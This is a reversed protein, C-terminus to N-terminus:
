VQEVNFHDFTSSSEKCMFDEGMLDLPHVEYFICSLTFYKLAEPRANRDLVRLYPINEANRFIGMGDYFLWLGEVLVMSIFHNVNGM